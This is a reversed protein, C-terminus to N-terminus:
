EDRNRQRMLSKGSGQLSLYPETSRADAHGLFDALVRSTASKALETAVSHKLHYPSLYPVRAEACARKWGDIVAWHSFRGGAPRSRANPFLPVGERRLRDAKTARAIRADIWDALEDTVDVVRGRRGKVEKLGAGAEAGDMAQVIRLSPRQWHCLDLARAEGPRIGHALALYIGRDEVPVAALVVAMAETTFVEPPNKVLKPRPFRPIADLEGLKVMWGLMRRLESVINAVTKPSRKGAGGYEGRALAIRWEEIQGPRIDDVATEDTWYAFPGGERLNSKLDRFTRPALDGIELRRREHELFRATWTTVSRASGDDMFPAVVRAFPEGHAVEEPIRDLLSRAECERLTVRRGGFPIRSVV